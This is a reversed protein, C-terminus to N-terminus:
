MLFRKSTKKNKLSTINPEFINSASMDLSLNTNSLPQSITHNAQVAGTGAGVGTGGGGTCASCFNENHIKKLTIIFSSLSILAFIILFVILIIINM